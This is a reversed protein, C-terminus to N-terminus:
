RVGPVDSYLGVPPQRATRCGSAQPVDATGIRVVEALNELTAPLSMAEGLWDRLVIPPNEVAM